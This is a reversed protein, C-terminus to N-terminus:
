ITSRKVPIVLRLLSDRKMVPPTFQNLPQTYAHGADWALVAADGRLVQSTLDLGAPFIFKTSSSGENLFSIFSIVASTLPRNELRGSSNDGFSNNRTDVARQFYAGNQQVFIRLPNGMSTKLLIEKKESPALTGVEFVVEDLMIRIETLPRDLFNEMKVLYGDEKQSVEAHFPRNESKYWDQAYFLSTWVPVYIEANFGNGVHQISARNAERGAGYQHSEGRLSSPIAESALPYSANESSYVSTFTRGRLDARDGRPLIDVFQLENWETNGARLKYGIFYILLSFLVVYSPFTIWTLMQRNIKQLWWRDFPGIVILYIILLLLLWEIPLKKVQRSDILAGFVGDSSLRQSYNMDNSSLWRTPVGLTRAWFHGRNKWSRFPEREPSFTLLTIWGRGRPARVVLPVGDVSIVPTGDRLSGTAVPMEANNFASDTSLSSYVSYDQEDMAGGVVLPIVEKKSERPSRLWQDVAQDIKHNSIATLEMPLFQQLWPTSNVDNLQEVVLVLHGGGRVWGLIAGVQNVSLEIAKESNIYLLDLGDLAIPNDPFHDPQFRAVQPQLEKSSPKIQPLTPIGSFTRPLAGMLRSEWALSKTSVNLVEQRVKGSFDRLRANWQSDYRGPSFVPIIIRKRTNTPLEVPIKRVQENGFLGSSLEIVANFSP